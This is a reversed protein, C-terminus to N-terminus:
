TTQELTPSYGYKVMKEKCIKEIASLNDKGFFDIWTVSSDGKPQYQIDVLQSIDSLLPFGLQRALSYITEAKNRYFDEYKLLLMRSTYQEYLEVIRNWRLALTEIYNKGATQFVTGEITMKWFPSPLSDFQQQSLAPQDGPLGLRDLISRINDRPDRLLFVVPSNPFRRFLADLYFVLGPEKIIPKSFLRRNNRVFKEFTIKNELLMKEAPYPIHYFIDLEVSQQTAQGLLAAIATSGTKQNGLLFVPNPYVSFQRNRLFWLYVKKKKKLLFLFKPLSKM